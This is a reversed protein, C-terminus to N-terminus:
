FRGHRRPDIVCGFLLWWGHHLVHNRLVQLELYTSFLLYYCGINSGEPSSIRCFTHIIVTFFSNFVCQVCLNHPLFFLCHSFVVVNHQVHVEIKEGSIWEVPELVSFALTFIGGQLPEFRGGFALVDLAELPFM